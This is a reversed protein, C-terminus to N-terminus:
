YLIIFEHGTGKQLRGTIVQFAVKFIFSVLPWGYGAEVCFACLLYKEQHFREPFGM